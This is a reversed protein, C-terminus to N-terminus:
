YPRSSSLIIIIPILSLFFVIGILVSVIINFTKATAGYHSAGQNDGLVKRDRAKISYILAVFGLCFCNCFMANFFSWLVHDQAPTIMPMTVITAGQNYPVYSTM